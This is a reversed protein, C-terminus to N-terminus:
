NDWTVKVIKGIGNKFIKEELVMLGHHTVFGDLGGQNCWNLFNRYHEKGAAFEILRTIVGTIGGPLPYVYDTLIAYRSINKINEIMKNRIEPSTEHLVMKAIACDYPHDFLYSLDKNKEILRFEVNPYAGKKIKKDAYRIMKPSIDLGTVRSCHGAMQIAFYGTGCGIEIVSNEPDIMKRIAKSFSKGSIPDIVYAYFRGDYWSTKHLNDHKWANM